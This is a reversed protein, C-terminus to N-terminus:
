AGEVIGMQVKVAKAQAVYFGRGVPLTGRKIRGLPTSLVNDAEGEAPQLIIGRRKARLAGGIGYIQSWTALENEAVVFQDQKILEKVIPELQRELPTGGFDALYELVVTIEGPQLTGRALEEGLDELLELIEEHDHTAHSWPGTAAITSRRGSILYIRAAPKAVRLATGITVLATTKGCGPPGTVVFAGVPEIRLPALEEDGIGIAIAEPRQGGLASFPVVEPLSAVGPAESLGARRMSAALAELQRSQVAVNSDGGLVGLQLELGDLIGRGPPSAPTLIDKPVNASAYDDRSTLRLILRRQISSSLSMPIGGVRDATIILHVGVQRGDSAIQEFIPWFPMRINSEYTDRFLRFGDLLILIRPEEPRGAIQRYETITAARAESYRLVRDDIEKQITRLLRGIRDEEDASLVAGVHPLTELMALGGGAFDLGYVHIPGGKASIGASVAITRLASSKGSGGTGMVAFNGDRDPFWSMTPQSQEAPRDCVGLLIETDLRPNPLQALDYTPELEPLWPRRLEPIEAIERARMVTGVIRKMDNPRKALEEKKRAADPDKPPEWQIARGFRLEEVLVRSPEKEGSTWGGAYGSQFARIRGPGTKAAGRGPTASDFHAAMKTGLIDKSDDEDAMRLAIRLNTNARLNDRIVGAPRQTALVMHLGLSRGRQAIDVMGDVFEPVENVLAAFEDVIIILAPPVETDGSRELEILDKVKKRNFLHERYHLEARLSTLARYVMHQSLDTVIGVCHPLKTCEAFASGGKYDVFLFSVRQPSHATAMGLVWAQLFESKGSGTTGGVLAHPGDTRLDIAFPEGAAMGFVARLTSRQKGIQKSALPGTLISHTEGWRELIADPSEAIETGVISLFNISRPLDSADDIRASADEVPTLARAFAEAGAHDVLDCVVPQVGLGTRVFGAVADGSAPSLELYTRCAAPIRALSGAVWLLHIGYAPGQEALQILRAREVPADDEVILVVTPLTPSPLEDASGSSAAAGPGSGTRRLELLDELATTMRGVPETGAALPEGGLPSHGGTVHPLWRLWHWDRASETSAVAAIALEAPSHLGAIQIAIARAVGVAVARQGGVGLNSSSRLNEVVPVDHVTSGHAELRRLDRWMEPLGKKSTPMKMEIRSAMSGIGLRLKLYADHEPRRTWLLPGRSFADDIIEAVSPAEKLRMARELRHEEDIEDATADVAAAFEVRADKWEKKSRRSNDLYMGLAMLPMMLMFIMSAPGRGALLFIPGMVLPILFMTWPLHAPKPKEPPEPAIIERGAYQPDLRPSRNLSVVGGLDAGAGLAAVEIMFSTSGVTVVDNRTVNARTILEGNVRTGNASGMDIVEAVDSINLRAHAKSVLEDRLVIDQGPDRGITSSGHGVSFERGDDAGSLVTIKAAGRRRTEHGEKAEVANALSVYAGGALSSDALPTAYDLVRSTSRGQEDPPTHLRLSIRDEVGLPAGEREPDANYIERAIDVIPTTPEATLTLDVQRSGPRVLTLNIKM